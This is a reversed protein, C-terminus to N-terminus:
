LRTHSVRYHLGFMNRQSSLLAVSSDKPADGAAFVLVM